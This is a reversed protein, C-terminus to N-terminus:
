KGNIRDLEAFLFDFDTFPDGGTRAWHIYGDGNILITSHLEMEEFDDYSHFRRANSHDEDSLLRFAPLRLKESAANEQPTNQSIALVVTNRSVFGEARENIAVLQEMCHVCEEGLFFVLLVNKGQYQALTVKRDQSDVAALKLAKFPQWIEKSLNGLGHSSFRRQEISSTDKPTAELGLLRVENFLRLGTQADSWVHLLQGYYQAATVRDGLAVYAKTLGALAIPDRPVKTFTKEFAAVAREPHDSQLLANGLVNYLVRPYRPPDNDSDRNEFELTSAEALLKLGNEVKGQALLLLAEVEQLQVKYHQLRSLKATEEQFGQLAAYRKTAAEIDGKGFYALAELYSKAVRDEVNDRWPIFEPQIIDDWREFKVLVRIVAALGERFPTFYRDPHDPNNNKPDLPASLIPQALALAQDPRGLHELVYCFYNLNHAYNWDQFVFVMRQQLYKLELKTALGLSIGAEHWIGQSAYVHGPMHLAHGVGPAVQGFKACSDLVYWGEPGDWNHIRYHLAGPHNPDQRLIEQLLAENAYRIQASSDGAAHSPLNENAYLAKAEIDDPYRLIIRELRQKFSAHKEITEKSYGGPVMASVRAEWAEIYMRERESVRHKRKSAEQLFGQARNKDTDSATPNTGPLCRYLGWYAMACEPDLKLCWRFSREAEYFWYSHLLTHGQNFWAQVEEQVEPAATIPFSTQGIGEIKWPKQRPGEDFAAGHLSHGIRRTELNTETAKDQGFVVTAFGLVLVTATFRQIVYTM